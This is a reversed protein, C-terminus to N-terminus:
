KIVTVTAGSLSLGTQTVGSVDIGTLTAQYTSSGAPPPPGTSSDSGGGCSAVAVASILMACMVTVRNKRRLGPLFLFPLFALSVAGSFLAAIHTSFGYTVLLNTPGSVAFAPDVNL